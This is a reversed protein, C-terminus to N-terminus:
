QVWGSPEDVIHIWQGGEKRGTVPNVYAPRWVPVIKDPRRMPFVPDTVGGQLNQSIGRRMTQVAEAKGQRKAGSYVQDMSPGTRPPAPSACASLLFVAALSISIAKINKFSFTTPMSYNM